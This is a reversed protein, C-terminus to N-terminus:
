RRYNRKDPLEDFVGDSAMEALKDFAELRRRRRDAERLAQNVTEEKGITGYLKAAGAPADDDLNIFAESM